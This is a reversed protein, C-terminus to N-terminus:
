LGAGNETEAEGGGAKEKSVNEQTILPLFILLENFFFNEMWLKGDM